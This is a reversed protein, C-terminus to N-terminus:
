YFKRNFYLYDILLLISFQLFESGNDTQLALAPPWSTLIDIMAYAVSDARKNHLARIDILGSFCDIVTMLYRFIGSKDKQMDVLDVQIRAFTHASLMPTFGAPMVEVRKKAACISCGHDKLLEQSAYVLFIFNYQM